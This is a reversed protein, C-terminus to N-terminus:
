PHLIEVKEQLYDVRKQNNELQKKLLEIERKMAENNTVDRASTAAHSSGLKLYDSFLGNFNEDLRKNEEKIAELEQMIYVSDAQLELMSENTKKVDYSLASLIIATLFGVPDM